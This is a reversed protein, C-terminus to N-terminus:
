SCTCAAKIIIETIQWTSIQWCRSEGDALCRVTLVLVAAAGSIATDMLAHQITRRVGSRAAPAAQVPAPQVAHAPPATKTAHMMAAVPNLCLPQSSKLYSRPYNPVRLMHPVRTDSLGLTLNGREEVKSPKFRNQHAPNPPAGRHVRRLSCGGACASTAKTMTSDGHQPRPQGAAFVSERELSGHHKYLWAKQRASMGLCSM